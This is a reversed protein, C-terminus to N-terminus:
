SRCGFLFGFATVALLGAPVIGPNSLFDNIEFSGTQSYIILAGVLLGVGGVQTIILAKIGGKVAKPDDNHFAILAYSCLATIEWFLFMFMLSGTLVLGPWVVSLFCFLPM